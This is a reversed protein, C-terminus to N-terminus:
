MWNTVRDWGPKQSKSQRRAHPRSKSPRSPGKAKGPQAKAPNKGAMAKRPSPFMFTGEPLNLSESVQQAMAQTRKQQEPTM